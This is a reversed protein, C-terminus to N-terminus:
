RTREAVWMGAEEEVTEAWAEAAAARAEAEKARERWSRAAVGDHIWAAGLFVIAIWRVM